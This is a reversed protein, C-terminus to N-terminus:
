GQNKITQVLFSACFRCLQEVELRTHDDCHNTDTIMLQQLRVLAQTLEQLNVFVVNNKSTLSQIVYRNLSFGRTKAAKSLRTHLADPFTITQKHSM